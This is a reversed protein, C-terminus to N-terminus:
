ETVDYLKMYEEATLHTEAWIKIEKETMPVIDQSGCMHWFSPHHNTYRIQICVIWVNSRRRLAFLMIEFSDGNSEGMLPYLM